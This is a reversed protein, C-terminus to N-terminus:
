GNIFVHEESTQVNMLEAAKQLSVNKLYELIKEKETDTMLMTPVPM